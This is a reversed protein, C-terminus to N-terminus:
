GRCGSESTRRLRHISVEAPRGRHLARVPTTARDYGWEAALELFPGATQRDPDALVIEGGPALLADFTELLPLFNQREYVIDAGIIWPFRGVPAPRRWDLHLFRTAERCGNREANWLAFALADEVYDTM